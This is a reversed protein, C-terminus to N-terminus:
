QTRVHCRQRRICELVPRWGRLDLERQLAPGPQAPSARRDLGCGPPYGRRGLRSLRRGLGGADAGEGLLLLRHGAHPRLHARLESLRVRPAAFGRRRVDHPRHSLVLLPRHRPGAPEVLADAALAAAARAADDGRADPLRHRGRQLQELRGGPQVQLLRALTDPFLEPRARHAPLRRLPEGPINANWLVRGVQGPGARLQDHLALGGRQRQLRLPVDGRQRPRWLQGHQQDLPVREHRERQHHQGHRARRLGRYGLRRVRGPRRAHRPLPRPQREPRLQQDQIRRQRRPNHNPRASRPQRPTNFNVTLTRRRPRPEPNTKISEGIRLYGNWFDFANVYINSLTTATSPPTGKERLAHWNGGVYYSGAGDVGVPAIPAPFRGQAFTEYVESPVSGIEYALLTPAFGLATPATWRVSVIGSPFATAVVQTPAGASPLSCAPLVGRWSGDVQCVLPNAGNAAPLAYSFCTVWCVSGGHVCYTSQIGLAASSTLPACPPVSLVSFDNLVDTNSFGGFLAFASAPLGPQTQDQPLLSFFAAARAIPPTGLPKVLPLWMGRLMDFLRLENNRFGQSDAGGFVVMCGAYAAVAMGSRGSPNDLLRNAIVQLEGLMVQGTDGARKVVHVFRGRLPCAFSVYCAALPPAGLPTVVSSGSTCTPATRITSPTIDAPPNACKANFTYDASDGVFFDLNQNQSQASPWVAGYISTAPQAADSNGYVVFSSVDTVQGLDVAWYSNARGRATLSMTTPSTSVLNNTLLGDVAFKANGSVIGTSYRNSSSAWTSSQWAYKFLAANYPGNLHRWIWPKRQWAQFECLSLIRLQGPLTIYLYRARLGPTAIVTPGGEPLQSPMALSCGGFGGAAVTGAPCGSGVSTFPCSAAGFECPSAASTNTNTAYVRPNASKGFPYDFTSGYTGSGTAFPSRTFIYLFDLQTPAGLDVGWWPGTSGDATASYSGTAFSQACLNCGCTSINAVPSQLNINENMRTVTNGDVAAGPGRQSLRTDAASMMAFKGLAVNTMESVDADVFGFPSLVFLDSSAGQATTGGFVYVLSSNPAAVVAHGSRPAPAKLNVGAPQSWVRATLDFVWVDGLLTGANDGGILVLCAGAITPTNCGTLFAMGALKRALPRPSAAAPTIASAQPAGSTSASLQWLENTEAGAADVGGFLYSSGDTPHPAAAARDFSVNAAAAALTEVLAGSRPPADFGLSLQVLAGTGDRGGVAVLATANLAIAGGSRAVLPSAPLVRSWQLPACSASGPQSFYGAACPLCFASSTAGPNPSFTNVPCLTCSTPVQSSAAAQSFSGAACSTCSTAGFVTSLSGAVCQLCSASRPSASYSGPPCPASPAGGGPCAWGAPCDVSNSSAGGACLNGVACNLCQSTSTARLSTSFTGSPCPATGRGPGECVFGPPCDAGTDATSGAPCWNGIACEFPPASGPCAWGLPCLTANGDVTGQACLRGPPCAQPGLGARCFYNAPCVVSNSTSPSFCAIGASCNTCASAATLSYTGAPCAACAATSIASGGFTGSRCPRLVGGNCSFGPVGGLACSWPPLSLGRFEMFPTSLTAVLFPGRGAANAIALEPTSPVWWVAAQTAYYLRTEDPSLAMGVLIPGPNGLSVLQSMAGWDPVTSSYYICQTRPDLAWFKNQMFSTLMQKFYYSSSISFSNTLGSVVLPQTFNQTQPVPYDIFGYLSQTRAFFLAPSPESVATCGTFLGPFAGFNSPRVLNVAGHPVYVM